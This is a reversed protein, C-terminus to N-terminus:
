IGTVAASSEASIQISSTIAGLAEFLSPYQVSGSSVIVIPGAQDYQSYIGSNMFEGCRMDIGVGSASWNPVKPGAGASVPLGTSTVAQIDAYVTSDEIANGSSDCLTHVDLRAAYRAGDRVAKVLKHETWFFHGAELGGFMLVLMMPLALAFEVASSGRSDILYRRIM